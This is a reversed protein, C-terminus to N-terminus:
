KHGLVDEIFVKLDQNLQQTHTLVLGHPADKYVKYEAHPVLQATKDGTLQIPQSADKDGHIVLVPIDIETLEQTFDANAVTKLCLSLAQLSSEMLMGRIWQKTSDRTEAVFFPDLNEDIWKPLDQTLSGGIQDFLAADFGDPNTPSKLLAPMASGIFVAGRVRKSGHRSLYRVIEGSGMAQGILIIDRLGLNEIFEHLDDALRDYDYGTGADGSHGHGRRDYAVCRYGQESFPLMQYRWYDSTFGWASVFVLTPGTGWERYFLDVENNVSTYNKM